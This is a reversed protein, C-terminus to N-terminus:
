QMNSCFGADTYGDWVVNHKRAWDCRQEPTGVKRINLDGSSTGVNMNPQPSCMGQASELWYDPCTSSQPPWDVQEVANKILTALVVLCIVLMVAAVILVTRQFGQM